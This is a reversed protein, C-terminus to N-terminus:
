CLKMQMLSQLVKIKLGISIVIIQGHL